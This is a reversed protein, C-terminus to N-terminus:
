GHARGIKPLAALPNGQAVGHFRAWLEAVERRHDEISQGEAARLANDIMAYQQVPDWLRTVVEVPELLAGTRRRVVDPVLDPQGTEGADASRAWKKAEGGMVVAVDSSGDLIASLAENILSQQPIGLEVLHTRVERAGVAEAVLRAPDPYAWSGQPVAMRDIAELIEPAGADRAADHLALGMLETAEAHDSATGVGVLVPTRPDMPAVM